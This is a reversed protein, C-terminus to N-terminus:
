STRCGNRSTLSGGEGAQMSQRRILMRGPLPPPRGLSQPPMVTREPLRRQHRRRRDFADRAMSAESRFWGEDDDLDIREGVQRRLAKREAEDLTEWWETAMEGIWDPADDGETAAAQRRDTWTTLFSLFLAPPNTPRLGKRDMWRRWDREATALDVAPGYRRRTEITVSEPLEFECSGSPVPIRDVLSGELSRFTVVDREADLTVAHDLPADHTVMKRMSRRFEKLRNGAGCRQHLLDVSIQWQSQKGCRKRAIENIRREFPQRLPFCDM